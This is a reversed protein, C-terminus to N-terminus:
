VNEGRKIMNEMWAVKYKRPLDPIEWLSPRIYGNKELYDHFKQAEDNDLFIRSRFNRAIKLAENKPDRRKQMTVVGTIQNEKPIM